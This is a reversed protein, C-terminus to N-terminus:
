LKNKKEKTVAWEKRRNWDTVAICCMTSAAVLNLAGLMWYFQDYTGLRDRFFGIVAPIGMFAPVECLGQLGSALGLSAVGVYDGYLVGRICILFGECVGVTTTLAALVVFQNAFSIVVLGAALLTLSIATLPCRSFPIKDSIFPVVLRGVLQGMATFTQLQNCEKVTGAKKDIGYAVITTEHMTVAYEMALFSVFLAYFNASRLLTFCHKLFNPAKVMLHKRLRHDGSCPAQPYGDSSRPIETGHTDSANQEHAELGSTNVRCFEDSELRVTKHNGCTAAHPVPKRDTGCKADTAQNRLPCPSSPSTSLCNSEKSFTTDDAVATPSKRSWSFWLKVPRPTNLLMALPVAHATVAGVLLLSRKFGYREAVYAYLNPGVVGSAAWGAYKFATATACYTDFYVLTYMTFSIVIMGSGAGYVGGLLVAMWTIDPAFSSAVLGVCALLAGLLGMHYVSMKPQLFAVLLGVCNLAATLVSQPWAAQEHSIGFENMYLVYLVGSSSATLMAFFASCAAVVPIAWCVDQVVAPPM